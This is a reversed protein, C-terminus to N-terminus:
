SGLTRPHHGSDSEGSLLSDAVGGVGGGAWAGVRESARLIEFVFYDFTYAMM